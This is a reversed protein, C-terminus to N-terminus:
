EKYQITTGPNKKKMKEVLKKLFGKSPEHGPRNWIVRDAMEGLPDGEIPTEATTPIVNHDEGYVQKLVDQIQGAAQQHAQAPTQVAGQPQAPAQPNLAPSQPNPM